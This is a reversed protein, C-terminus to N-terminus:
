NKGCYRRNFGYMNINVIADQATGHWLTRESSNGLSGMQQKKAEYQRYLFPNQIREITVKTSELTRTLNDMVENYEQCGEELAVTVVPQTDPQPTWKTPQTFPLTDPNFIDSSNYKVHRARKEEVTLLVWQLFLGANPGIESRVVELQCASVHSEALDVQQQTVHDVNLEVMARVVGIEKRRELLKQIAEWEWLEKEREGLLIFTAMMVSHLHPHPPGKRASSLANLDRAGLKGVEQTVRKIEKLHDRLRQANEYMPKVHLHSAVCTKHASHLFSELEELSRKNCVECLCSVKYHRTKMALGCSVKDLRTKMALGCSVKDLRTKMALGCSVKDLRTKMVLGCSVKDLRTKMVLRCSVKDLRTKMVLGCSVKDLRTKMVLRCSVKDLRTKMVLRCSVKDLRTKMVLRCSVKDLRTKMVLRCSVKDLRTKMVLRCSVKDLRTKVVLRCSVKDLRTKMKEYHFVLRNDAKHMIGTVDANLEKVRRLAEELRMVDDDDKLARLLDLVAKAREIVKTEPSGFEEYEVLASELARPDTGKMAECLDKLKEGKMKNLQVLMRNVKSETRADLIGTKSARAVTKILRDINFGKLAEQQDPFTLTSDATILYNILQLHEIEEKEGNEKEGTEIVDICLGYEADNGTKPVTVSVNVDDKTENCRVYKSLEDPRMNNHVLVPHVRINRGGKNKFNFNMNVKEGQRAVVVGDGHSFEEVMKRAEETPGIPTNSIPFRAPMHKVNVCDIRFEGLVTRMEGLQGAVEVRYVGEVPLRTILAKEGLKSDELVYRDVKVDN